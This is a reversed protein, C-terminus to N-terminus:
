ADNRPTPVSVEGEAPVALLAAEAAQLAGRWQKAMEVVQEHRLGEWADGLAATALERLREDGERVAIELAGEAAELEERVKALEAELEDVLKGEPSGQKREPAALCWRAHEWGGQDAVVAACTCEKAVEVPVGPYAGVMKAKLQAVASALGQGDGPDHLVLREDRSVSRAGHDLYENDASVRLRWGEPDRLPFIIITPM